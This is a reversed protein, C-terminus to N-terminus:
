DVYRRAYMTAPLRKGEPNKRERYYAGYERDRSKTRRYYTDHSFMVNNEKESYKIGMCQKVIYFRTRYVNTAGYVFEPINIM